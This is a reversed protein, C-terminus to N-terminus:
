EPIWARLSFQEDYCRSHVRDETTGCPTNDLCDAILVQARLNYMATLGSRQTSSLRAFSSKCRKMPMEQCRQMRECRARIVDADSTDGPESRELVMDTCARRLAETGPTHEGIEVQEVYCKNLLAIFPASGSPYAAQCAADHSWKAGHLKALTGCWEKQAAVVKDHDPFASPASTATAGCAAIFVLSVRSIDRMTNGVKSAPKM